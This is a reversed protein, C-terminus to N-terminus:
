RVGERELAALRAELGNLRRELADRRRREARLERQLGKIAALSIGDPDVSTIHRPDEGVGFARSLDQAMPGIHRISPGQGRYSWESIPVSELKRLVGRGSVPTIATKSAEDSLSAWSGGGSALTVGGTPNGSGDIASVFRAGGTSLVSFQNPATSGFASCNSDAWVFAGPHHAVADCGAALSYNGQASNGAGGPVTAKVGTAENTSGGSITAYSEAAINFLGGGVTAGFERASNEKGGGVTAMEAIAENSDGGAVTARSGSANGFFGGGVTAAEGTANNNGGGGVTALTADDVTGAGDGAQNNAGGGVTGQNDTVRNATAPSSPVGRGGGGITASYVGATVQNDAIGGIVNPSQNTADSAPDIRLGRAGNVSIDFPRGNPLASWGSTGAPLELGSTATGLADGSILRAGGTARVAFQNPATSSFGWFHSDAWVFSGDHVASANRGAALSYDGNATNQVGGAATSGLGSATNSAGGPVTAFSADSASGAGDGAQNNAGGGVTGQHDTIRNASAPDSPTGRGGGGITASHVGATVTNDAIGGIVNPSQNTGDSAPELRLGRANNVRLNFPQNDTTGLFDSGTTGGNGSLKWSGGTGGLMLTSEDIDAGTLSNDAVKSSNVANAAIKGASVSSAGLDPATVQGDAIKGTAVANAGLDPTKVEGNVIDDSFVTNSGNLALASGTSLALFLALFGILNSRIHRRIRSAM